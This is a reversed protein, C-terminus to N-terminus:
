LSVALGVTIPLYGIDLDDMTLKNYRIEALLDIKPMLGAKIGAGISYFFESDGDIKALGVGILGFPRVPIGPASLNASIDVGYEHIKFDGGIENAAEDVIVDKDIGFSRYAYRGVADLGPTLRVGIGVTGHFAPDWFTNLDQFPFSIGGGAYGSIGLGSQASAPVTLLCLLLITPAIIRM